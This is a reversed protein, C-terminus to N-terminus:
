ALSPSGKLSHSWGGSRGYGRPMGALIHVLANRPNYAPSSATLGAEPTRGHGSPSHTRVPGAAPFPDNPQRHGYFGKSRIQRLTLVPAQPYPQEYGGEGPGKDSISGLDAKWSSHGPGLHGLDAGLMRSM